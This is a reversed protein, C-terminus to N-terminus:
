VKSRESGIGRTSGEFRRGGESICAALEGIYGWNVTLPLLM